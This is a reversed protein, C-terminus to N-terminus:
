AIEPLADRDLVRALLAEAIADRWEAHSLKWAACDTSEAGECRLMDLLDMFNNENYCAEAFGSLAPRKVKQAIRAM